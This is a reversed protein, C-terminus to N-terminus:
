GYFDDQQSQQRQRAAENLIQRIGKLGYNLMRQADRSQLDEYPTGLRDLSRQWYDNYRMRAVDEPVLDYKKIVYDYTRWGQKRITSFMSEVKVSHVPLSSGSRHVFGIMTVLYLTSDVRRIPPIQIFCGEKLDEPKITMITGKM